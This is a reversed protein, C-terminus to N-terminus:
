VFNPQNNAQTYGWVRYVGNEISYPIQYKALVSVVFNSFDTESDPLLRGCHEKRIPDIDMWEICSSIGKRVWEWDPFSFGPMADDDRLYKFRVNPQFEAHDTFADALEKWKTKNM